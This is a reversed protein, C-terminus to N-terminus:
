WEGEYLDDADGGPGSGTLLEDLQIDYPDLGEEGPGM